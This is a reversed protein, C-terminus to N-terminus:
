NKVEGGLKNVESLAAFFVNALDPHLAYADEYSIEEKGDVGLRVFSSIFLAVVSDGDEERKKMESRYRDISGASKLIVHIEFEDEIEEGDPGTHKWTVKKPIPTMTLLGGRQRLEELKM